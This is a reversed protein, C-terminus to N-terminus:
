PNIFEECDGAKVLDLGLELGNQFGQGIRYLRKNLSLFWKGGKGPAKELNSYFYVFHSLVLNM